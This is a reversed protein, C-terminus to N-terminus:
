LGGFVLELCRASQETGFCFQQCLSRVGLSPNQRRAVDALFVFALQEDTLKWKTAFKQSELWQHFKHWNQSRQAFQVVVEGTERIDSGAYPAMEVSLVDSISTERGDPLRITIGRKEKEERADRFFEVSAESGDTSSLQAALM